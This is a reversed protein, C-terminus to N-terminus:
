HIFLSNRNFFKFTMKLHGQLNSYSKYLDIKVIKLIIQTPENFLDVWYVIYERISVNVTMGFNQTSIDKNSAVPAVLEPHPQITSSLSNFNSLPLPTPEPPLPISSTPVAAPTRVPVVTPIVVPVTTPMVAPIVKEEKKTSPPSVPRWEEGKRHHQGSSVPFQMRLETTRELSSKVPM